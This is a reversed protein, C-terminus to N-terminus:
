ELNNKPSFFEKITISKLLKLFEGIEEAEEDSVPKDEKEMIKKINELDLGEIEIFCANTLMEYNYGTKKRKAM